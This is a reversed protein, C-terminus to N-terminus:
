QQFVALSLTNHHGGEALTVIIVKQYGEFYISFPIKKKIHDICYARPHVWTARGNCCVTEGNRPAHEPPYLMVFLESLFTHHLYSFSQRVILIM